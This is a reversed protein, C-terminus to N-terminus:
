GSHGHEVGQTVAEVADKGLDAVASPQGFAVDVLDRALDAERQEFGVDVHADDLGEDSTHLFPRDAGSSELASSGPWCNM